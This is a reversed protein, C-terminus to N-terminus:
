NESKVFFSSYPLKEKQWNKNKAYNSSEILEDIARGTTSRVLSLGAKPKAESANIRVNRQRYKVKAEPKEAPSHQLLLILKAVVM